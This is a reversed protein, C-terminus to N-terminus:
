FIGPILSLRRQRRETVLDDWLEGFQSLTVSTTPGQAGQAEAPPPTNPSDIEIVVEDIEVTPRLPGASQADVVIRGPVSKAADPGTSPTARLYTTIQELLGNMAGGALWSEYARAIPELGTSTGTAANRKNAEALKEGLNKSGGEVNKLAQDLPSGKASEGVKAELGRNRKEVDGLADKLKDSAKRIANSTETVAANYDAALKAMEDAPFAKSLEVQPGEKSLGTGVGASPMAVPKPPPMGSILSLLAASANVANVIAAFIPLNGLMTLTEFLTTRMWGVIADLTNSIGKTFAALLDMALALGREVSAFVANMIGLIADSLATLTTGAVRAAAAVTDYLVVLVAGRLLFVLRLAWSLLETIARQVDGLHVVLSAFAGVLIPVLLTAGKVVPVLAEVFRVWDIPPAPVAAAGVSAQGTKKDDTQFLGFLTKIPEALKPLNAGLANVLDTLPPLMQTVARLLGTLGAYDAPAEKKNKDKDKDDHRDIFALIPPLGEVIKRLQMLNDHLAAGGILGGLFGGGIGGIMGGLGTMLNGFLAGLGNQASTLENINVIHVKLAGELMPPAGFRPGAQLAAAFSGGSYRATSREVDELARRAYRLQTLILGFLGIFLDEDM